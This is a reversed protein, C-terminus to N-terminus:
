RSTIGIKRPQAEPSKPLTVTLVGDQITATTKDVEVPVPLNFARSFRLAARERRHVVYGEPAEAKREGAISLVGQNMSIQLDKENVGPVDAKVVIQAGADFVNVRPWADASSLETSYGYAESDWDQWMRDMRRRLEDLMSFSRDFEGLQRLM